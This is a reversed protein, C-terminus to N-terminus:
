SSGDSRQDDRQQLHYKDAEYPSPLFVQSAKKSKVRDLGPKKQTGAARPACQAEKQLGHEEQVLLRSNIKESLKDLAQDCLVSQNGHCGNSTTKLHSLLRNEVFVELWLCQVFPM